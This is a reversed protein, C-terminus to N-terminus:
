ICPSKKSDSTQLPTSFGGETQSWNDVHIHEAKGAAPKCIGSCFVANGDVSGGTVLTESFSLEQSYVRSGMKTVIM